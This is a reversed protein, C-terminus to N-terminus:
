YTCLCIAVVSVLIRCYYKLIYSPVYSLEGLKDKYSMYAVNAVNSGLKKLNLYELAEFATYNVLHEISEELFSTGDDVGLCGTSIVSVVFILCFISMM